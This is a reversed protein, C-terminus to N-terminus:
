RRAHLSTSVALLASCWYNPVVTPLQKSSNGPLTAEPLSSLSYRDTETSISTGETLTCFRYYNCIRCLSATGWHFQSDNSSEGENGFFLQSHCVSMRKSLCIPLCISAPKEGDPNKGNQYPVKVLYESNFILHGDQKAM